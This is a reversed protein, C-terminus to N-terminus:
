DHAQVDKHHAAPPPQLPHYHTQVARAAPFRRGSIHINVKNHKIIFAVVKFILVCKGLNLDPPVKGESIIRNLFTQLYLRSLFSTHRLLENPIGDVGASKGSPLTDLIQELETFTYPSSVKAEFQDERFLPAQNSLIQDLEQLTIEIQDVDTDQTFIPIRKGQFVSGFHELIAEEIETPEFVM